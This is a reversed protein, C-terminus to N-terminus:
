SLIDNVVAAFNDFVGEGGNVRHEDGECYKGTRVLFRRLNLQIAGGGLDNRWDDGVQRIM